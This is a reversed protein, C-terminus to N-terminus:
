REIQLILNYNEYDIKGSIRCIVFASLCRHLGQHKSTLTNACYASLHFQHLAIWIIKKTLSVVMSADDSTNNASYFVCSM